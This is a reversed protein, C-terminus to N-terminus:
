IGNEEEILELDDLSIEEANDLVEQPIIIESVENFNSFTSEMTQVSVMKEGELDMEMDMMVVVKTQYFTEKNVHVEYNLQNITMMSLMEQMMAGMDDGIMGSFMSIMENYQEGSGEINLVYVDNEEKMTMDDSFAKLMELQEAPNTQIESLASIEAAFESPMKFWQAAMGDFFFIGEPSFYSETEMSGMLSDADEMTTVQYMVLPNITMDTNTTTVMNLPDEGGMSIEQNATMEMSYSTLQAMVETSKKLVEDATLAHPETSVESEVENETSDTKKENEQVNGNTANGCATLLMVALFGIFWMKLRNM